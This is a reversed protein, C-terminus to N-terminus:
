EFVEESIGFTKMEQILLICEKETLYPRKDTRAHWFKHGLVEHVRSWPLAKFDSEGHPVHEPTPVIFDVVRYKEFLNGYDVSETESIIRGASVIGVGKVSLFVYDGVNFSDVLHAAEDYSSVKNNLIMDMTSIDSYTKNTDFIIGKTQAVPCEAMPSITMPSWEVNEMACKLQHLYDLDSIAFYSPHYIWVARCGTTNLNYEDLMWKVDSGCCVILDPDILEIEKRIFDQYTMVYRNLTDWICYSFGGRKNLNMVSIAQLITHEKNAEAYNGSVIANALLSLRHSFLTKPVNGFAVERHWFMPRIVENATVQEETYWNAEKAIFLIKTTSGRYKNEDIIGDPLFMDKPINFAVYDTNEEEAHAKKWHDFLEQFSTIDAINSM